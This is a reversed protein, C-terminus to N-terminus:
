WMGMGEGAWAGGAPEPPATTFGVAMVSSLLPDIRTKSKSKLLYSIGEKDPPSMQAGEVARDLVPNNGHALINRYVCESFRKCAEALHVGQRQMICTLGEEELKPVVFSAYRPDYAIATVEFMACIELIETAVQSYDIVVGECLRIPGKTEFLYPGRAHARYPFQELEERSEINATPTWAWTLLDIRPAEVDEFRENAVSWNPFSLSFALLDNSFSLDFGAYCQRGVLKLPQVLKKGNEAWAASSIWKRGSGSVINLSLQKTEAESEPSRAEEIDMRIDDIPMIIGVSPNACYIAHDSQWDLNAQAESFAPLERQLPEVVLFDQFRKAREVVVVPAKDGVGEIHSMDFEIKGPQVPQQLRTIPLRTAGVPVNEILTVPIPEGSAVLVLNRWSGPRNGEMQQKAENHVEAWISGDSLSPGYTTITVMLPSLRARGARKMVVYLKRNPHRHIEDVFTASSDIGDNRHADASLVSYFSGSDMHVLRARSDIITIMDNLVPSEKVLHAAEDYIIRAQNRDCACSYVQAKPTGDAVLMYNAMASLLASKGNKKAIAVYASQYRRLKSDRHVWGFLTAVFKRMWPVFRYPQGFLDERCANNKTHFLFTECFRQFSDGKGVYGIADAEEEVPVVEGTALLWAGDFWYAPNGDLDRSLDYIYGRKAAEIDLPTEIWEHWGEAIAQDLVKGEPPKWPFYWDNHYAQNLVPNSSVFKM